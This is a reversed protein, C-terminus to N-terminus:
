GRSADDCSHSTASSLAVGIPSGVGGTAASLSVTMATATGPSVLSASSVTRTEGIGMALPARACASACLFAIAMAGATPGSFCRSHLLGPSSRCVRDRRATPLRCHATVSNRTSPLTGVASTPRPWHLATTVQQAVIVLPKTRTQRAPWTCKPVPVISPLRERPTRASRTISSDPSTVYRTPVRSRSTRVISTSWAGASSVGAAGAAAAGDRLRIASTSASGVGISTRPPAPALGDPSMAPRSSMWASFSSCSAVPGSAGASACTTTKQMSQDVLVTRSTAVAGRGNGSGSWSATDASFRMATADLPERATTCSCHSCSLSDAASAGGKSAVPSCPRTLPRTKAAEVSSASVPSRAGASKEPRVAVNSLRRM